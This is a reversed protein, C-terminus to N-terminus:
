DLGHKQEKRNKWRLGTLIAGTASIAAMFRYVWQMATVFVQEEGEVFSMVTYGLQGSMSNYLLVTSLSIGFVIGLNRALANIRDIKEQTM